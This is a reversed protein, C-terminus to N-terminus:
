SRSRFLRPNNPYTWQWFKNCDDLTAFDKELKISEWIVGGAANTLPGTTRPERVV